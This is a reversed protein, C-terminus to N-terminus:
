APERVAELGRAAQAWIAAAAVLAASAALALFVLAIATPLLGAPVAAVVAAAAAVVVADVPAALDRRSQGPLLLM